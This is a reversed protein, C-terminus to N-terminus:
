FSVRVNLGYGATDFRGDVIPALELEQRGLRTPLTLTAVCQQGRQNRTDKGYFSAEPTCTVSGDLTQTGGNFSVWFSVRGPAQPQNLSYRVRLYAQDANWCNERPARDYTVEVRGAPTAGGLTSELRQGCGSTDVAYAPSFLTAALLSAILTM